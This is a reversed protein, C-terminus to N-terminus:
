RGLGGGGQGEGQSLLLSLPPVAPTAPQSGGKWAESMLNVNGAQGLAPGLPCSEVGLPCSAQPTWASSPMGRSVPAPAATGTARSTCSTPDSISRAMRRPGSRVRTGKHPGEPSTHHPHPTSLPTSMPNDPSPCSLGPAATGESVLLSSSDTLAAFFPVQTLAPSWQAGWWSPSRGGSDEWPAPVTWGGFELGPFFRTMTHPQCHERHFPPPGSDSWSPCPSLLSWTLFCSCRGDLADQPPSDSACSPDRAGHAPGTCLSAPAQLSGQVGLWTGTPGLVWRGGCLGLICGRTLCPTLGARVVRSTAQCWTNFLSGQRGLHSFQQEPWAGGRAKGCTARLCSQVLIWRFLTGLLGTHVDPGSSWRVARGGSQLLHELLTAWRPSVHYFGCCGSSRCPPSPLSQPRNKGRRGTPAPPAERNGSDWTGRMWAHGM